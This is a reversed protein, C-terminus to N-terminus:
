HFYRSSIVQTLSSLRLTEM